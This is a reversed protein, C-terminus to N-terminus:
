LSDLAAASFILPEDKVDCTWYLATPPDDIHPLRLFCDVLEKLLYQPRRQLFCPNCSRWRLEPRDVVHETPWLM